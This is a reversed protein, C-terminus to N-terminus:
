LDKSFYIVELKNHSVLNLLDFYVQNNAKNPSTVKLLVESYGFNLGLTYFSDDSKSMSKKNGLVELSCSSDFLECKFKIEALRFDVGVKYELQTPDFQPALKISSLDISKLSADSASLRKCNLFYKKATGDEATVEVVIDNLGEKLKVSDGYGSPSKTTISAGKDSPVSKV